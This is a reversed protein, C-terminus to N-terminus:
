QMSKTEAEILGTDGLRLGTAQSTLTISFIEIAPQTNIASDEKIGGHMM